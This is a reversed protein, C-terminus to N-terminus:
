RQVSVKRMTYRRISGNYVVTSTAMETAGVIGTMKLRGVNFTATDGHLTCAEMPGVKGGDMFVAGAFAASDTREFRFAVEPSSNDLVLTGRWEGVLRDLTTAEVPSQAAVTRAALVVLAMPIVRAARRM